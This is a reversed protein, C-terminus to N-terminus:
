TTPKTRTPTWKWDGVTRWSEYLATSGGWQHEQIHPQKDPDPEAQDARQAALLAGRLRLLQDVRESEADSRTPESPNQM